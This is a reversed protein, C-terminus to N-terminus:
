RPPFGYKEPNFDNLTNLIEDADTFLDLNHIEGPIAIATMGAAKAGKIGNVSDEFVICDKPLVKMKEAAKLFIDPAPKGNTVEDGTAMCEFRKLMEPHREMKKQVSEPISSTALCQRINHHYFYKTLEDAGINCEADSM